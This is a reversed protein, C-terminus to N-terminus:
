RVAGYIRGDTLELELSGTLPKARADIDYLEIAGGSARSLTRIQMSIRDTGLITDEPTIEYSINTAMYRALHFRIYRTSIGTVCTSCPFLDIRIFDGSRIRNIEKFDESFFTMRVTDNKLTCTNPWTRNGPLSDYDRTVSGVFVVQPEYPIRPADNLTSCAAILLPLLVALRLTMIIVGSKLHDAM